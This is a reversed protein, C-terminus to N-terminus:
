HGNVRGTSVAQALPRITSAVFVTGNQDTSYAAQEGGGWSLQRMSETQILDVAFSWANGTDTIRYGDVTSPLLERGHSILTRLTVGTKGDNCRDLHADLDVIDRDDLYFAVSRSRIAGM